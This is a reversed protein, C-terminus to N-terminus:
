GVGTKIDVATRDPPGTLLTLRCVFYAIIDGPVVSSAETRRIDRELWGMDSIALLRRGM